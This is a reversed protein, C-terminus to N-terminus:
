CIISPITRDGEEAAHYAVLGVALADDGEFVLGVFGHGDLYEFLDGDLDTRIPWVNGVDDDVVAGAFEGDAFDADEDGNTAGVAAFGEGGALVGDVGEFVVGGDPFFFM